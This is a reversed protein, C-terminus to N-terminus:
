PFRSVFPFPCPYSQTRPMGTLPVQLHKAAAHSSMGMESGCLAGTPLTMKSIPPGTSIRGSTAFSPAGASLPRAEDHRGSVADKSVARRRAEALIGTGVSNMVRLEPGRRPLRTSVLTGGRAATPALPLPRRDAGVSLAATGVDPHHQAPGREHVMYVAIM